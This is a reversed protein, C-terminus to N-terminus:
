KFCIDFQVLVSERIYYFVKCIHSTYLESHVVVRALGRIRVCRTIYKVYSYHVIIQKSYQKVSSFNKQRLTPPIYEECEALFVVM